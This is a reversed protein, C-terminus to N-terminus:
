KMNKSIGKRQGRGTASYSYTTQGEDEEDVVDFCLCLVNTQRAPTELGLSQAVHDAELTAALVTTINVGDTWDRALTTQKWASMAARQECSALRLCDGRRSEAARAVRLTRVADAVTFIALEIKM